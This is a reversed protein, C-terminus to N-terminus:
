GRVVMVIVLAVSVALSTAAVVFAWIAAVHAGHASDTAQETLELVRDVSESAKQAYVQSEAAHRQANLVYDWQEETLERKEDEM